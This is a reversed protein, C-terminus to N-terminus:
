DNASYKLKKTKRKISAVLSSLEREEPDCKPADLKPPIVQPKHKRKMLLQMAETNKFHPDSPDINYLHSSFLKSFRADDPDFNFNDTGVDREEDNGKKKSKKKKQGKEQVLKGYDFHSQDREKDDMVLLELGTGNKKTEETRALLLTEMGESESDKERRGKRGKDSTKRLSDHSIKSSDNQDPLGTGDEEPFLIDPLEEENEEELDKLLQKYKCVKDKVPLGKVPNLIPEEEDSDIHESESSALFAELDDLAQESKSAFAHEIKQQRAPDTEDWTMQVKSQQLASTVFNPAKYTAFDPATVCQSSPKDEFTMDDPVFRVDLASSSNEYEFGDLEDYLVAATKSSDCVVIAYYYKLRNLQYQRLKETMYEEGSDGDEHKIGDDDDLIPTEVIEMPGRLNEEEMRKKGFESPYVYVGEVMSNDPKFSNFLVFLDVARIRDWDINCVALRPTAEETRSAHRDLEGWDHQVMDDEDDESEEDSSSSEVSDLGRADPKINRGESVANVGVDGELEYHDELNETDPKTIVSGRKDVRNGATFRRETFMGQFREDIKVKREQSRMTRFRSDNVMQGFRPDGADATPVVENKKDM